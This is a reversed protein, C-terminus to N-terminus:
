GDPCAADAASRPPSLASAELRWEHRGRWHWLTQRSLWLDLVGIMLTLSLLDPRGPLRWALPLLVALALASIGSLVAAQQRRTRRDPVLLSKGEPGRVLEWAEPLAAPVESSGAEPRQLAARLSSCAEQREAASGLRPLEVLREGQQATLAGRVPQLFVARLDRRELRLDSRSPGRRQCLLADPELTLRDEAEVLRLLEQLAALGGVPGSLWGSCCSPPPM